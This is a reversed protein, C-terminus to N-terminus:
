RPRALSAREAVHVVYDRTVPRKLAYCRNLLYNLGNMTMESWPIHVSTLQPATFEASHTDDYSLVSVQGPVKVGQKQFLSLAGVAMEDNACFVATFEEGSALLEQARAFGGEPTFEGDAMWVKSSDVGVADLEAMFGAIRQQNDPAAARGAIVAIKRHGLALLTRAALRGGAEHDVNFCQKAMGPLDQNIAVVRSQFPGLAAFDEEEMATSIVILGDSGREILFNVGDIAQNRADGDGVGFAVVMNLGAERLATYISQLIPTYFTGALYPIYVGIMQTSGSLLSRAAHSPRFELQEIAKRVKEQTSQSVSGKGSIVRSATGLGVGALRAVDKITAVLERM